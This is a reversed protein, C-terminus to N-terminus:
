DWKFTQILLYKSLFTLGIILLAQYRLVNGSSTWELSADVYFCDEERNVLFSRSKCFAYGNTYLSSIVSGKLIASGCARYWSDCFGECVALRERFYFQNQFPACIYCMLYNTYRQCAPSAGVLPKVRGFTADIEEQMCCSNERFWTCNKLSPQPKPARNNFFSCYQLEKQAFTLSLSIIFIILCLIENRNMKTINTDAAMPISWYRNGHAIYQNEKVEALRDDQFM